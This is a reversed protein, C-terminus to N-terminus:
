LGNAAASVAAHNAVRNLLPGKPSSNATDNAYDIRDTRSTNGPFSGIDSKGGSFYGYSQNGTAAFMMRGVSLNGKHLANATDNSYDIREVRTGATSEPAGGGVYGYSANGTAATFNRGYVINGRHAAQLTDNSYNIRCYKTTRGVFPNYGSIVYGYSQNGAASQSYSALALAGSNHVSGTNDNSFDIRAIWTRGGSPSEGGAWYGYNANSVGAVHQTYNLVGTQLHFAADTDNSYDIRAAGTHYPTAGAVYGHSISSVGGTAYNKLEYIMIGKEVMTATDNTYDIRQFRSYLSGSPSEEGGSFYGSIQPNPLQEPFLFPPQTPAQLGANPPIYPSTVQPNGNEKASFAQQRYNPYALAGRPSFNSTDNAYDVRYVKTGGNTSPTGGAWYGYSGTGAAARYGTAGSLTGRPSATSTDSAYNIRSLRTQQSWSPGVVFYGFDGNGTATCYSGNASLPGRISVQQNDNAYDVRRVYTSGSGGGFYGYNRNGTAGYGYYGPGPYFANSPGRQIENNTDNSYDDRGLYYPYSWPRGGTWAYDNNGVSSIYDGPTFLGARKTSQTTDNAYDTRLIGTSASSNGAGFTYGHTMNGTGGARFAQYQLNGKPSANATDNDFDIRQIQTPYNTGGTWYGYAPGSVSEPVEPSAGTGELEQDVYRIRPIYSTVPGGTFVSNSRSTVSMAESISRYLTYSYGPFSTTDNAYSFTQCQHTYNSWDTYSAPTGSHGGCFFGLSESSAPAAYSVPTASNLRFVANDTDNAYDFRYITSYQIPYNTGYKSYRYNVNGTATAGRGGALDAGKSIAGVNDNSYDIRQLAPGYGGGIYGYNKNGSGSVFTGTAETNGRASAAVNDNSWDVRQVVSAGASSDGGAWYGYNINSVAGMYRNNNYLFNGASLKTVNDTSFNVRYISTYPYASFWGYDKSNAGAGWRGTNPMNTVDSRTSNAYNMRTVRSSVGPYPANRGGAIYIVSPGYSLPAPTTTVMYGDSGKDTLKGNEVQTAPVFSAPTPGPGGFGNSQGSFGGAQRYGADNPGAANVDLNGKPSATATDNSYDIRDITTKYQLNSPSASPDQGGMFYGYNQNGTAGALKFRQVSLKGKPTSAGTDNAYDYRVITSGNVGPGGGIINYGYNKNGTATNSEVPTSLTGKPSATSSDSAYDIRSVSSQDPQNWATAGGTWWGYNATGTAGAHAIARNLNGRASSTTNDNSFNIRDVRSAYQGASSPMWDYQGSIWAYSANGTSSNGGRPVSMNGRPSATSTDSAYTVRSIWSRNTSTFSDGMVYGHTINGFAACDLHDHALNGKPSATATDNAFSIKEVRKGGTERSGFSGAGGGGSYGYAPGGPPSPVAPTYSAVYIFPDFIDTWDNDGQREVIEELSFVGRRNTETM